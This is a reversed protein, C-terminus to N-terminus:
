TAARMRRLLAALATELADLTFDLQRDDRLDEVLRCAHAATTRDLEYAEGIESLSLEGVFHQLYIAIQRARATGLRQRCRLAPTLSGDVFVRSVLHEVALKMQMSSPRRKTPPGIWAHRAATRATDIQM